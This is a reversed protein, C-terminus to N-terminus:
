TCLICMNMNHYMDGKHNLIEFIQILEMLNGIFHQM